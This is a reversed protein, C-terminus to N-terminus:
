QRITLTSKFVGLAKHSVYDLTGEFAGIGTAGAYVGTGATIYELGELSALQTTPFTAIDYHIVGILSTTMTGDTTLITSTGTIYVQSGDSNQGTVVFVQARTGRASVAGTITVPGALTTSTILTENFSMVLSHSVASPAAPSVSTEDVAVSGAGAFAPNPMCAMIALAILTVAGKLLSYQNTKMHISNVSAQNTKKPPSQTVGWGQGYSIQCSVCSIRSHGAKEELNQGTMGCTETRDHRLDAFWSKSGPRLVIRIRM